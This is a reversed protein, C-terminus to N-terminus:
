CFSRQSTLRKYSPPTASIQSLVSILPFATLSLINLITLLLWFLSRLHQM